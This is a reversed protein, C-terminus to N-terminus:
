LAPESPSPPCSSSLRRPRNRHASLRFLARPVSLFAPATNHKTSSRRTLPSPPPSSSVARTRRCPTSSVRRQRARGLGLRGLSGVAVVIQAGAKLRVVASVQSYCQARSTTVRGFQTNNGRAHYHRRHCPGPRHILGHHQALVICYLTTVIPVLFRRLATYTLRLCPDSTPATREIIDRNRLRAVSAPPHNPAENATRTHRSPDCHLAFWKFATPDYLYLQDKSRESVQLKTCAQYM